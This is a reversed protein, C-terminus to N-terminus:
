DDTLVISGKQKPAEPPPQPSVAGPKTQSRKKAAASEIIQTMVDRIVHNAVDMAFTKAADDLLVIVHKAKCWETALRDIEARQVRPFTVKAIQKQEPM